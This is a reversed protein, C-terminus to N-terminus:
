VRKGYIMDIPEFGLSELIKGLGPHALKVHHYIVEVGSAKLSAHAYKLLVLGVGGRRHEQTVFVVDEHAHLSSRYHLAPAVSFFAYGILRGGFRATFVRLAGAKQMLAYAERHPELPIDKFHAIEEYHERILPDLEDWLGDIPELGYSVTEALVASM